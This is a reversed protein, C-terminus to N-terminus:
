EVVREVEKKLGAEGINKIFMKSFRKGILLRSFLKLM